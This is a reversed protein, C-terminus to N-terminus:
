PGCAAKMAKYAEWSGYLPIMGGIFDGVSFKGESASTVARPSASGLLATPVVRTWSSPSHPSRSSM